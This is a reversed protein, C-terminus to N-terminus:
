EEIVIDELFAMSQGSKEQKDERKEDNSDLDIEDFVDQEAGTNQLEYEARQEYDKRETERTLTQLQSEQIAQMERLKAEIQKFNGVKGLKDYSELTARHEKALEILKENREVANIQQELQWLQTQYQDYETQLKSLIDQLRSQQKHLFEIQKEGQALRDAYAQRVKNIRNAETYAENISFRVGDFRLSVPRSTSQAKSEARTVLAKLDHLDENTMAVVRRALETNHEFEALQHKVEAIEGQVTAIRDPYQEALQQLQNRLATPEDVYATVVDRAQNRLQALGAAVQDGGILWTTGGLVLAGILGWRFLSRTICSM